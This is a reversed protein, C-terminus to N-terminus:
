VYYEIGNYPVKNSGKSFLTIFEKPNAEYKPIGNYDYLYYNAGDTDFKVRKNNVLLYKDANGGSRQNNNKLMEYADNIDTNERKVGVM